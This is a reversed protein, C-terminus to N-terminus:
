DTFQHSYLKAFGSIPILERSSFDFEATRPLASIVDSAILPFNGSSEYAIDGALGHLFVARQIPKAIFQPMLKAVNEGSKETAKTREKLSAASQAIMGAIMGTLVDGTGATALGPNGSTNICVAGNPSAIVTRHGKLVVVASHKQAFERAVAGRDNQIQAITLGTLRAMEGPHPTLVLLRNKGDLKETCHEFANLGDADLVVPIQSAAVVKQIFRETEPNRSLGPGIAVAAKGKMLATVAELTRSSITGDSNEPLPFTMLEPAFGAVTPLVSQPTAVTVLGAGIRLAAIGALAAAGAKGLSGAIVLVHGNDGKQAYPSRQSKGGVPRNIEFAGQVGSYASPPTGINAVVIPLGNAHPHFVHWPKPFAFTVVADARCAFSNAALSTADADEGSPIDVSLIPVKADTMKSVANKCLNNLPSHFGAGVIADILLDAEFLSQIDSKAFEEPSLALRVIIPQPLKSLMTAPASSLETRNALLVIRVQKGLEQLKRAAVLGDGGNNGKGCVVTIRAAEPFQIRAFRAVASGAREMLYEDHVGYQESSIRDIERMEAATVVKM